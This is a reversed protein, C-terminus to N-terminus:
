THVSEHHYEYFYIWIQAYNLYKLAQDVSLFSIESRNADVGAEM